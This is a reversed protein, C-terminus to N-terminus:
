QFEDKKARLAAFVAEPSAGHMGLQGAIDPDAARLFPNTLREIALLEPVTAEGRAVRAEVEDLRLMLTKNGPDVLRAFRGNAQTYEHACYVRTQLPLSALRGLSRFMTAADGEFLRGCGLTFLTDGCFLAEDNEFWFCLHDSTHGPTDLVTAQSAGLNWVRTDDLGINIGPIRHAGQRSGVIRCGTAEKLALNAGTHDWHHHTNLIWDLHWGREQLASLVPGPEGPDVAATISTAADRLLWIYNDKLAPVRIVELTM